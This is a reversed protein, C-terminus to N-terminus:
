LYDTLSMGSGGSTGGFISSDTAAGLLSGLKSASQYNAVAAAYLNDSWGAASREEPSMAGYLSIVNQAFAGPDTSSGASKLSQLLASASRTRMENSAARSETLSFQSGANLAVAAISRSDFESYDPKSSGSSKYFADLTARADAAVSGIDRLEGTEGDALRKMYADIPDNAVAGPLTAPDAEITKLMQELASRQDAYTASAKEEPGMGDFYALAATYLGKIAGTVRGVATPGALAQDFRNQMEIAAAKQEEVTFKQDANTSMAYLERREVKSLDIALAGDKLPSTLKAAALLADMTARADSTVTAFDKEALAAKAADSLTVSTASSGSPPTGSTTTSATQTTKQANALIQAYSLSQSVTGVSTM